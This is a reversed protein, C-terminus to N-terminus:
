ECLDDGCCCTERAKVFLASLMLSAPISHCAVRNKENFVNPARGRQACYARLVSLICVDEGVMAFAVAEGGCRLRLGGACANVLMVTVADQRWLVCDCRGGGRAAECRVVRGVLVQHKDPPDTLTVDLSSAEPNVGAFSMGTASNVLVAKLLAASPEFGLTLNKSGTNYWGERFYQRAMAANGAVVPTAM